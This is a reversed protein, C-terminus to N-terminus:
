DSNISGYSPVSNILAKLEEYLAEAEEIDRAIKEARKMSEEALIRENTMNEHTKNEHTKNKTEDKTEDKLRCYM